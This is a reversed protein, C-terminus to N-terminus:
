KKQTNNQKFTMTNNKFMDHVFIASNTASIGEWTPQMADYRAQIEPKAPKLDLFGSVGIKSSSNPFPESNTSAPMPRGGIANLYQEWHDSLKSM